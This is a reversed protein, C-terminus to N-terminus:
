EEKVEADVEYCKLNRDLINYEFNIAIGNDHRVGVLFPIKAWQGTTEYKVIGYAKIDPCYVPKGAMEKLKTETIIERKRNM